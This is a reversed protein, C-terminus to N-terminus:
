GFTISYLRALKTTKNGVMLHVLHPHFLVIDGRQLTLPELELEEILEPGFYGEQHSRLGSNHSGPSYFLGGREDGMVSLAVTLSASAGSFYAADQHLPYPRSCTNITEVVEDHLIRDTIFARVRPLAEILESVEPSHIMVGKAFRVGWEPESKLPCRNLFADLAKCSDESLAGDLVIVGSAELSVAEMLLGGEDSCM